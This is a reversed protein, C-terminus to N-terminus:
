SIAKHGIRPTFQVHKANKPVYSSYIRLTGEFEGSDIYEQVSRSDIFETPAGPRRVKSFLGAGSAGLMFSIFGNSAMIM